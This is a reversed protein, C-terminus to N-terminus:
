TLSSYVEQGVILSLAIKKKSKESFTFIMIRVVHKGRSIGPDTDIFLWDRKERIVGCCGNEKTVGWATGMQEFM